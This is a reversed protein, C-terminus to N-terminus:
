SEPKVNQHASYVSTCYLFRCRCYTPFYILTLPTTTGLQTTLPPRLAPFLPLLSLALTPAPHSHLPLPCQVVLPPLPQDPSSAPSTALQTATTLGQGLHCTQAPLGPAAQPSTLALPRAPPCSSPPTEQGVSLLSSLHLTGELSIAPQPIHM